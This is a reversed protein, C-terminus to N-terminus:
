KGPAVPIEHDLKAKFKLKRQPWPGGKTTVTGDISTPSAVSGAIRVKLKFTRAYSGLVPTVSKATKSFGYSGHSLLTAGPFGFVAFPTEPFGHNKKAKPCSVGGGLAFQSGLAAQGAEIRKGSTSTVLTLSVGHKRGATSYAKAGVPLPAGLAVGVLLVGVLGTAIFATKLFRSASV